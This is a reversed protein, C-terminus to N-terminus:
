PGHVARLDRRVAREALQAAVTEFARVGGRRSGVEVGISEYFRTLTLADVVEPADAIETAHRLEHAVLPVLAEDTLTCRFRAAVYRYGGAASVLTSWADYGAHASGADCELYVVVPAADLRAVLAQFVPSRGVGLAVLAALRAVTSRVHTPPDADAPAVGCAFLLALLGALRAPSFPM